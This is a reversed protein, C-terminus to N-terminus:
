VLPEVVNVGDPAFGAAPDYTVAVPLPLQEVCNFADLTVIAAVDLTFGEGVEDSVTLPVITATFLTV